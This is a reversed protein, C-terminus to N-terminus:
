ADLSLQQRLSEWIQTSGASTPHLGDANFNEASVANQMDLYVIDHEQCVEQLVAAMQSIPTTIPYTGNQWRLDTIPSMVVLLKCRSQLAPLAMECAQRYQQATGYAADNTGLCVFIVDAGGRAWGDVDSALDSMQKGGVGANVFTAVGHNTAWDRFENAWDIAATTPEYSTQGAIDYVVQAGDSGDAVYTYGDTLYGETISDGILRISSVQGAQVMKYFTSADPHELDISAQADDSDTSGTDDTSASGSGDSSADAGESSADEGLAGDAPRNRSGASAQEGSGTLSRVWKTLSSPGNFGPVFTAALTVALIVVLAVVLPAIFRGRHSRQDERLHAPKAHRASRADHAPKKAQSPNTGRTPDANQASRSGRAKAPAAHREDTDHGLM